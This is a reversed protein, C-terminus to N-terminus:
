EGLIPLGITPGAGLLMPSLGTVTGVRDEPLLDVTLPILLPTYAGGFIGFIIAYATMSIENPMLSVCIGSVLSVSLCVYLIWHKNPGLRDAILCTAIRAFMETISAYSVLSSADMTSLGFEHAFSPLIIFQCYYGVSSSFGSAMLSALGPTCLFALYDKLVRISQRRKSKEVKGTISTMRDNNPPPARSDDAVSIIYIEPAARKPEESPLPFMTAAVVLVHLFVGGIIMMTGRHGYTENTWNIILPFLLGGISSGSFGIGNALARHNKFYRTLLSLVPTDIVASLVGAHSSM